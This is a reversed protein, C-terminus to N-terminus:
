LGATPFLMLRCASDAARATGPTALAILVIGAAVVV